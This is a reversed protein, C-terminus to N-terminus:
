EARTAVEVDDAHRRAFVHQRHLTRGRAGAALQAHLRVSLGPDIGRQREFLERQVDDDHRAGIELAPRPEEGHVGGDRV